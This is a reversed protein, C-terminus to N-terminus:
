CPGPVRRRPPSTRATPKPGPRPRGCCPTSGTACRPRCGPTSPPMSGTRTPACRAVSSAGSATPPPHSSASRAAASRWDARRPPRHDRTEAVAHDRLWAGLEEADAVTAERFGLLARIEARQRELTRDSADPLLSARSGPAPVGLTRALAAVAGESVEDAARPFRGRARFFLLMVAFRLRNGWRKAEVLLRDAPTLDWTGDYAAASM